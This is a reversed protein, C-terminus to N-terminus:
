ASVGNNNMQSSAEEVSSPECLLPKLKLYDENLIEVSKLGDHSEEWDGAFPM